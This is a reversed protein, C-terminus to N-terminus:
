YFLKSKLKTTRNALAMAEAAATPEDLLSANSIDLDTLDQVM